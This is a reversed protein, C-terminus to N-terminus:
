GESAGGGSGSSLLHFAHVHRTATIHCGSGMIVTRYTVGVGPTHGPAPNPAPASLAQKSRHAQMVSDWVVAGPVGVHYQTGEADAAAVM